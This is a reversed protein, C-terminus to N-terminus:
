GFPQVQDEGNGPNLGLRKRLVPQTATTNALCTTTAAFCYCACYATSCNATRLECNCNRLECNCYSSPLQLLSPLKCCPTVPTALM